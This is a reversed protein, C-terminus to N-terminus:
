ARICRMSCSASRCPLVLTPATFCAGVAAMPAWSNPCTSTASHSKSITPSRIASSPPSCRRSVGSRQTKTPIPSSPSDGSYTALTLAGLRGRSGKGALHGVVVFEDETECKIKVWDLTRQPGFRYPSALRKAVVGELGQGKCLEFLQEGHAEIHDLARVLGRGRVLEFLLRKRASLALGTLDLGDVALLDFALYVVATEAQARAMDIATRAQIRSGLRQFRPRGESDFAVVEGDLVCRDIPLTEVARQVEAYNGSCGRGNRYRLTVDRGHKVAVIRVGDLKLEYLREPDSLTAGELACLMPEFTGPSLEREPAGLERAKEVLTTAIEARLELEDVTLGSLVSRPSAELIELDKRSHADKKKILLWEKGEGRKTRVLAFRGGLKHGSLVFDIKGKEVGTEADTELYAVRGVDWAIMPGAGYNGEPIVDEFDAYELPHDETLVALRREDPDLSPGRPVAFSKLSRGMQLRLDYHSRRAQHLHVVFRGSRTSGASREREAGFPENTALPDRKRRYESLSDANNPTQAGGAGGDGGRGARPKQPPRGPSMGALM